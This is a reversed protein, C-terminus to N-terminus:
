GPKYHISISRFESTKNSGKIINIFLIEVTMVKVFVFKSETLPLM